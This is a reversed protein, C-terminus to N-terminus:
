KIPMNVRSTINTKDDCIHLKSIPNTPDSLRLKSMLGILTQQVDDEIEESVGYSGYYPPLHIHSQWNNNIYKYFDQAPEYRINAASLSPSAGGYPASAAHLPTIIIQDSM